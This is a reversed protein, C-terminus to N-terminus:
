NVSEDIEDLAWTGDHNKDLANFRKRLANINRGKPNGVFEDWPVKGDNNKDRMEFLTKSDKRKATKTKNDPQRRDFTVKQKDLYFDFFKNAQRSMESSRGTNLGPPSLTKSWSDLTSLLRGAVIPEERILNKTEGADAGLDFLYHRDGGKLYKWRGERVAAQGSWRWFLSGHPPDNNKGTLYPMLNVGDLQPTKTIGSVAEITAYIDLSIIPQSYIQHAPIVGKWYVIFPVRIGGETLMGKEGNMPTNLSGNWGPGQGPTDEMSIRLPAGNDGVFFILTKDEINYQRLTNIVMGVGDDVASLMSLAKRRREPMQGDFRKLYKQPPDLPVHPARYALYFFFPKDHHRSIFARAAASCADIHYLGSKEPGLEQDNGEIDFNALGPHNSVKYYIDDFGHNSIEDTAGLHWKGAMGTAYGADKLREAITKESKFGQLTDRNTEVGFRNQYKGVLLGARSPVCQPATVYGDTVRVGGLALTDINPSKVDNVIEQSALDAYGHDDTFIVIINASECESLTLTGMLVLFFIGSAINTLYLRHNMKM